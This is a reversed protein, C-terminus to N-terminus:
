LYPLHSNRKASSFMSLILHHFVCSLCFLFFEGFDIDLMAANAGEVLIKKGSKFSKDLYSVTEQVLPRIREAYAKYKILEAEVDVTLSPFMRQYM